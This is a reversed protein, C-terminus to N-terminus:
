ASFENRIADLDTSDRLVYLVWAIDQDDYLVPIKAPFDVPLRDKASKDVFHLLTPNNTPTAPTPLAAENLDTAIPQTRPTGPAKSGADNIVGSKLKDLQEVVPQTPNVDPATASGWVYFLAGGVVGLGVLPLLVKTARAM